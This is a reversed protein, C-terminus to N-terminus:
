LSKIMLQSLIFVFHKIRCIVVKKVKSKSVEKVIKTQGYKGYSRRRKM